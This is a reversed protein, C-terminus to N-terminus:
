VICEKMEGKKICATYIQSANQQQHNNGAV